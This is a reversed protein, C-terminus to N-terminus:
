YFIGTFISIAFALKIMNCKKLIHYIGLKVTSYRHFGHGLHDYMGSFYMAELTENLMTLAETNTTKIYYDILFMYTHPMPFKPATNLGKNTPDFESKFQKFTDDLITTVTQTPTSHHEYQVIGAVVKQASQTSTRKNTWADDLAPILELMGPRGGRSEKPFYTGAFTRKEPTMVITLPWGGAGTLMQCVSMYLHDIDPREERDVKINIFTDNMLAAVDNDEFSEHEM